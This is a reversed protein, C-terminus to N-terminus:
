NGFLVTITDSLILVLKYCFWKPTARNDVVTVCGKQTRIRRESHEGLYFVSKIHGTDYLLFLPLRDMCFKCRNPLQM